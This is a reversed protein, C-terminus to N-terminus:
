TWIMHFPALASRCESEAVGCQHEGDDRGRDTSVIRSIRRPPTERQSSPTVGSLSHTAANEWLVLARLLPVFRLAASLQASNGPGGGLIPARWRVSDPLRGGCEHVAARVLLAYEVGVQKGQARRAQFDDIQVVTILGNKSVIAVAPDYEVAFDVIM